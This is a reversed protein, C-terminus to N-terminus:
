QNSKILSQHVLCGEQPVASKCLNVNCQSSLSVNKKIIYDWSATGYKRNAVKIPSMAPCCYVTHQKQPPWHSDIHTLFQSDTLWSKQVSSVFNLITCCLNRNRKPAIWGPHGRENPRQTTWLIHRCHPPPLTVWFRVVPLPTIVLTSTWM